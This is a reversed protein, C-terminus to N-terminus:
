RVFGGRASWAAEFREGSVDRVSGLRGSQIRRPDQIIRESLRRERGVRVPPEQHTDVFQATRM